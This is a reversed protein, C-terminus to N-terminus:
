GIDYRINNLREVDAPNLHSYFATTDMDLSKIREMETDSLRFDFVNLNEAMRVKHTSKPICVIGRQTLWRLAVQAVSKSHARGIESLIANQFFGNRGEAFSGWSQHQVGKEQMLRLYEHRQWFVHTEIQNVAPAIHNHHILDVLRDPAFNCVGIARVLGERYLEELARWAGYYDGLPKHVLYLDLYELRLRALSRHFARKASDYGADQIWLKTTVFLEGRDVGSRRIAEGVAQENMYAAATDILRYGTDIADLVCQGCHEPAIQYVGFGLLPMEVGNNLKVFEM